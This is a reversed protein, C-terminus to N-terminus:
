VDDLRMAEAGIAKMVALLSWAPFVGRSIKMTISGPSEKIGMEALRRSLEGYSIERRSLETSFRNM